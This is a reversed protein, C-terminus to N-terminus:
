RREKRKDSSKNRYSRIPKGHKKSRSRKWNSPLKSKTPDVRPTRGSYPRSLMEEKTGTTWIGSGRKGADIVRKIMNSDLMCSKFADILGAHYLFEHIQRSNSMKYDQAVRDLIEDSDVNAWKKKAKLLDELLMKWFLLSKPEGFRSNKPPWWSTPKSPPPPNTEMAELMNALQDDISSGALINDIAETIENNM